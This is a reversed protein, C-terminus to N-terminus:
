IATGFAQEPTSELGDRPSVLLGLVMSTSTSFFETDEPFVAGFEGWCRRGYLPAIVRFAGWRWPELWVGLVVFISGTNHCFISM